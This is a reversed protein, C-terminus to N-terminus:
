ATRAHADPDTIDAPLGQRVREKMIEDAYYEFWRYWHPDNYRKRQEMLIPKFKNWIQLSGHSPLLNYLTEIDIDGQKLSYGVQAIMAFIMVRKSYNDKNVTSDYKRLFDDFDEWEMELLEIAILSNERSQVEQSIQQAIQYKRNKDANRMITIYYIIGVLVGVTQLTSLVMQYTIEVM